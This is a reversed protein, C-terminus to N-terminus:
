FTHLAPTEVPTPMNAHPPPPHPMFISIHLNQIAPIGSRLSEISRLLDSPNNKQAEYLLYLSYQFKEMDQVFERVTDELFCSAVTCDVLEEQILWEAVTGTNKRYEM